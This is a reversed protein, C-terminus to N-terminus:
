VHARGIEDLGVNVDVDGEIEQWGKGKWDEYRKTGVRVRVADPHLLVPVVDPTIKVDVFRGTFTSPDFPKGVSCVLDVPAVNGGVTNHFALIFKVKYRGQPIGTKITRLCINDARVCQYVAAEERRGDRDLDEAVPYIKKLRGDEDVALGGEGSPSSTRFQSMRPLDALQSVVGLPMGTKFDVNVLQFSQDLLGRGSIGLRFHSASISFRPPLASLKAMLEGFEKATRMQRADRMYQETLAAMEDEKM